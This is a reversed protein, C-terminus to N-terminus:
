NNIKFTDLGSYMFLLFFPTMALPESNLSLILLIVMLWRAKYIVSQKILGWLYWLAFLIGWIYILSIIGNTTGTQALQSGSLEGQKSIKSRMQKFRDTNAGIGIIPSKSAITLGSIVDAYRHKYSGSNDGSIKNELNHSVVQEWVTFMAIFAVSLIFVSSLINTEKMFVRFSIYSLIIVTILYGTTSYTLFISVLTAAIWKKEKLFFFQILLFINLYIQYIGPEWFLSFLRNERLSKFFLFGVHSAIRKDGYSDIYTYESFLNPMFTYLLYTIFGHIILIKMLFTIDTILNEGGKLKYYTFVFIGAIINSLAAFAASDLEGLVTSQLIIIILLASLFLWIKKSVYKLTIGSNFKYIQYGYGVMVLICIPNRPFLHNGGSLMMVLFLMIISFWERKDVTVPNMM